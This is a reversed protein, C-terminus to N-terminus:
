VVADESDVEKIGVVQIDDDGQNSGIQHRLGVVVSGVPQSISQAVGSRINDGVVQHSGDVCALLIGALNLVDLLSLSLLSVAFRRGKSNHVVVEEEQEEEQEDAEIEEGM